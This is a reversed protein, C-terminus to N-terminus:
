YFSTILENIKQKLVPHVLDPAIEHLPELVFRRQHFLPHPLELNESRIICDDYLILDIDIIRDQYTSQHSKRRRGMSKEISQIANQIHNKTRM